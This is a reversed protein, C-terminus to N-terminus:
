ILAAIGLIAKNAAVMQVAVKALRAAGMEM